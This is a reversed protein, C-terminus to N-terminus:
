AQSASEAQRVHRPERVWIALLIGGLVSVIAAVVFLSRYSFWTALLGGLIPALTKAPALLTNTLGIYTPRDEPACFELIINMGSVSDASQAIGLLAFTIWLWVPSSSLWGILATIAMAFAACVLVIKHGRRDGMMGWLVNMVAQTAVLIGTLIGVQELAGAISEKGYVMFFGAAMSGLNAVSRAVLFRLYNHDRRLVAPLQRLYHRLHVAPKTTPSAPERTLSLGGWSVAAFVFALVFCLGFNSPFAWTALIRGAVAAGAIGLFAGLSHGLGSWLGRVRVPIVKAIMDFWAPTATGNSAASTALLLFFAALAVMPASRGLWWVVLGILLYPTREGLGGLVMVFPKKRPLSEAFNATLLQPLLYGLSYVAPILGIAIKSPTLESVLLPMITSQSVLNLGFMIFTIDLLNVIFNWRLNSEVQRELSDAQAM